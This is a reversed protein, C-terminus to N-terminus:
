HPDLAIMALEESDGITTRVWRENQSQLRDIRARPGKIEMAWRVRRKDVGRQNDTPREENIM